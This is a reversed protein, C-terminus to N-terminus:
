VVRLGQEILIEQLLSRHCHSEDECSCSLSFGAGSSLATLLAILRQAAPDRM